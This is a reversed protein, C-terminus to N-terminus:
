LDSPLPETGACGAEGAEKESTKALDILRQTADITRTWIAVSVAILTSNFIEIM